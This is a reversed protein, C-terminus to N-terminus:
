SYSSASLFACGDSKLDTSLVVWDIDLLADSNNILEVTHEGQDLDSVTGLLAKIQTSYAKGNGAGVLVNDVYITYPGYDPGNAGYISIGTGEPCTLPAAGTARLFCASWQFHRLRVREQIGYLSIVPRLLAALYCQEAVEKYCNGAICGVEAASEDGDKWAGEPNYSILPSSDEVVDFDSHDASFCLM